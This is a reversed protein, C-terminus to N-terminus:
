LARTEELKMLRLWIDKEVQFRMGDSFVLFYKGGDYELKM